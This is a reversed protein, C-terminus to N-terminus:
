LSLTTEGSTHVSTAVKHTNLSTDNTNNDNDSKLPNYILGRLQTKESALLGLLEHHMECKEADTFMPQAQHLLGADKCCLAFAADSLVERLKVVLKYVVQYEARYTPLMLELNCFTLCYHPTM